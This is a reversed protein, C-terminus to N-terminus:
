YLTWGMLNAEIGRTDDQTWAERVIVGIELHTGPENVHLLAVVDSQVKFKELRFLLKVNQFDKITPEESINLANRLKLYSDTWLDM